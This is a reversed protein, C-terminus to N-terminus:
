NSNRNWTLHFSVVLRESLSIKACHKQSNADELFNRQIWVKNWCSQLAVHKLFDRQNSIGGPKGKRSRNLLNGLLIIHLLCTPWWVRIRGINFKLRARQLDFINWKTEQNFYDKKIHLGNNKWCVQVGPSWNWFKIKVKNRNICLTNIASFNWMTM